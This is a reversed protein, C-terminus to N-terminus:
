RKPQAVHLDALEGGGDLFERVWAPRSGRGTWTMTPKTPHRYKIPVSRTTPRQPTGVKRVGKLYRELDSESMAGFEALSLGYGRISQDVRVMMAQYENHLPILCRMTAAAKASRLQEQLVEIEDISLSEVDITNKM